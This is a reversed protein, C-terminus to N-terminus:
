HRDSLFQVLRDHHLRADEFGLELLRNIYIPHFIIFSLFDKGSHIDVDLIKLLTREFATLKKAFFNTGEVCEAFVDRLDKSPFIRLAELRKLGRSAIDGTIAKERLHTNIRHLFDDGYCGEAWDVIRNIRELQEIDYDLRDLFIATFIKGLTQGLTPYQSLRLDPLACVDEEKPGGERNHLGIALIRDAGLQIAPSMPTNLRLGGDMYYFNGIRIPQFVLPIAASAMAHYYELKTDHFHYLGTYCVEPHKEVFLELKGTNVNTATVSVARTVGNQINVSIQRWKVHQKLFPILPTANLLGKFHTKRRSNKDRKSSRSMVSSAVGYLSRSFFSLLSLADRRYVQDQKVDRWLQYLQNGQNQLDHSTSALFCVNIAGVSSGCLTDFRRERSIEQPLMTRIYHIVGAEYAGRAGGGSLVLALNKKGM